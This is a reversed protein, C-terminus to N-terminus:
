KVEMLELDKVVQRLNGLFRDLPEPNSPSPAMDHAEGGASSPITSARAEMPLGHVIKKGTKSDVTVQLRGQFLGNVFTDGDPGPALFLVVEDGAQFPTAGPIETRIGDLSGGPQTFVIEAAPNGKLSEAVRVRVDTVIMTADHNWRSATSLVTGHVIASSSGALDRVGMRVVTTAPAPPIGVFAILLASLALLRAPRIM